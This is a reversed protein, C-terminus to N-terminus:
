KMMYPLMMGLTRIVCAIVILKEVISPFVVEM